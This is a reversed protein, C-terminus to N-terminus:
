PVRRRNKQNPAYLREAPTRTRIRGARLGVRSQDSRGQKAAQRIAMARVPSETDLRDLLETLAEASWGGTPLHEQGALSSSVRAVSEASGERVSVQLAATAHGLLQDPQLMFLEVDARQKLEKILDPHPGRLEGRVMRWWDPKNESTVLLVDRREITAQRLM